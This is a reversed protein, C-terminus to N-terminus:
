GLRAPDQPQGTGAGEPHQRVWVRMVDRVSIVGEVERGAMVVLHRFGGRVMTAAAQQLTWDPVAYVVERTLHARVREVDPDLGAGIAYLLDRETMIGVGSSEPDIVVASGVKRVSMLAAVQRLTHDPGVVLVPKTMADRVYM